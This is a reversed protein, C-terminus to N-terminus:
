SHSFHILFSYFCMWIKIERLNKFYGKWSSEKDEMSTETKAHHKCAICQAGIPMNVVLMQSPAIYNQHIWNCWVPKLSRLCKPMVLCFEKWLFCNSAGTWFDKSTELLPIFKCYFDQHILVAGTPCQFIQLLLPLHSSLLFWMIPITDLLVNKVEKQFPMHSGRQYNIHKGQLKSTILRCDVLMRKLWWKVWDWVFWNVPRDAQCRKLREETIFFEQESPLIYNQTRYHLNTPRANRLCKVAEQICNRFNQFVRLKRCM